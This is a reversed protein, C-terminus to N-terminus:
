RGGTRKLARAALRRAIDNSALDHLSRLENKAFRRSARWADAASVNITLRRGSQGERLFHEGELMGSSIYKRVTKESVRAHRAYERVTMYKSSETSLRLDNAPPVLLNALRRALSPDSELIRTFAHLVCRCLGDVTVPGSDSPDSATTPNQRM